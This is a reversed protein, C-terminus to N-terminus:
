IEKAQVQADKRQSRASRSGPMKFDILALDLSMNRVFRIAEEGNQAATVHHGEKVLFDRLMERQSREDEVMLIDLNQM